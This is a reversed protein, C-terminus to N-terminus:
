KKDGVLLENAVRGASDVFKVGENRMTNGMADAEKYLLKGWAKLEGKLTRRKAKAM